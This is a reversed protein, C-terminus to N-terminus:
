IFKELEGIPDKSYFVDRIEYYKLQSIKDIASEIGGYQLISPLADCIVEIPMKNTRKGNGKNVESRAYEIYALLIVADQIKLDCSYAIERAHEEPVVIRKSNESFEVMYTKGKLVVMGDQFTFFNNSTTM